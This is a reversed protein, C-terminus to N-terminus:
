SSPKRKNRAEQELLWKEREEKATKKEEFLKDAVGFGFMNIGAIVLALFSGIPRRYPHLKGASDISGWDKPIFGLFDTLGGYILITLFFFILVRNFIGSRIKKIFNFHDHLWEGTVMKWGFDLYHALFCLTMYVVIIAVVIYLLNLWPEM